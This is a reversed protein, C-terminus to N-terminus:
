GMNNNISSANNNISSMNNNVNSAIEKSKVWRIILMVTNFKPNEESYYFSKMTSKGIREGTLNYVKHKVTEFM